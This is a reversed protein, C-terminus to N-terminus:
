YAMENISRKHFYYAMDINSQYYYYLGLDDYVQIEFDVSGNYWAYHLAKLFLIKASKGDNLWLFCKGLERLAHFKYVYNCLHSSINKLHNYFYIAELMKKGSRYIEAIQLLSELFMLQDLNEYAFILTLFLYKLIGALDDKRIM